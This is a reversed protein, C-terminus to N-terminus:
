KCTFKMNDITLQRIAQATPHNNKLQVTLTTTPKFYSVGKPTVLPCNKLNLKKLKECYHAVEKLDGDTWNQQGLVKEKIALHTLYDGHKNKLDTNSGVCLTWVIGGLILSGIFLIAHM